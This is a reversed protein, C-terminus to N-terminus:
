RLPDEFKVIPVSAHSLATVDKMKDARVFTSTSGRLVTCTNTLSSVPPHPHTRERLVRAIRNVIKKKTGARKDITM